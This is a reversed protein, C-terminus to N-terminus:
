SLPLMEVTQRLLQLARDVQACKEALEERAHSLETVLARCDDLTADALWSAHDQLAQRFDEMKGVARDVLARLSPSDSVDERLESLYALLQFQRVGVQQRPAMDALGESRFYSNRWPGQGAGSRGPPPQQRFYESWAQEEQEWEERSEFQSFAFGEDMGSCDLHCFVPGDLEEAMMRCIPCDHDVIAEASSVAFPIRRREDDIVRRPTRGHLLEADPTDLWQDRELTLWQTLEDVTKVSPPWVDGLALELLRRVLDYYLVFEHTGIGGERVATSAEPLPPPCAGLVSWEWARASIEHEIAGRRRLLVDRPTAGSLSPRPTLLWREHIARAAERLAGERDARSSPEHTTGSAASRAQWSERALYRPLELYLTARDDPSPQAARALRRDAARQEAAHSWPEILWSDDLEYRLVVTRASDLDLYHVDEAHGLPTETPAGRVGVWRAPLDIVLGDEVDALATAGGSAAQDVQEVLTPLVGPHVYRGLATHLEAWSEPNASLAAVFAEATGSAVQLEVTRQADRLVLLVNM